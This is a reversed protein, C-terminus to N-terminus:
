AMWGSFTCRTMDISQASGNNVIARVDIIDGSVLSLPITRSSIKTYGGSYEYGIVASAGVGSGNKYLFIETGSGLSTWCIAISFVYLGDAPATFKYTSNNYSGTTDLWESSFSLVSGNSPTYVTGGNAHFAPRQPQVIRGNADITLIDQTTSPYAGRALKFTGDMNSVVSLKKSADTGDGLVVARAPNVVGSM